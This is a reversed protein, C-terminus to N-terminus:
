GEATIARCFMCATLGEAGTTPEGFTSRCPLPPQHHLRKSVLRRIQVVKCSGQEWPVAPKPCLRVKGWDETGKQVLGKGGLVKKGREETETEHVAGAFTGYGRWGHTVKSQPAICNFWPHEATFDMLNTKGSVRPKVCCLM